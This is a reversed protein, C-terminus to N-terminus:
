RTVVVPIVKLISQTKRLILQDPRISAPRTGFGIAQTSLGTADIPTSPGFGSLSAAVTNMDNAKPYWARLIDDFSWTEASPKLTTASRVYVVWAPVPATRDKGSAALPLLENKEFQFWADDPPGDLAILIRADTRGSPPGGSLAARVVGAPDSQSRIVKHQLQGARADGYERDYVAVGIFGSSGRLELIEVFLYIGNNTRLQRELEDLAIRTVDDNRGIEALKARQMAQLAQDSDNGNVARVADDEHRARATVRAARSSPKMPTGAIIWDSDNELTAIWEDVNAWPNEAAAGGLRQRLDRLKNWEGIAQAYSSRENGANGCADLLWALASWSWLGAGGLRQAEAAWDNRTPSEGKAVRLFDNVIEVTVPELQDGADGFSSGIVRAFTRQAVLGELARRPADWTTKRFNRESAGQSLLRFPAGRSMLTFKDEPTKARNEWGPDSLATAVEKPETMQSISRPAGGRLSDLAAADAACGGLVGIGKLRDKRSIAAALLNTRIEGDPTSNVKKILWRVQDCPDSLLRSIAVLREPPLEGRENDLLKNLADVQNQHAFATTNPAPQARTTLAIAIAILTGAFM